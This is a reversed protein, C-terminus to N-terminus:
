SWFEWIFAALPILVAGALLVVFTALLAVIILAALQGFAYGPDTRLDYLWNRV